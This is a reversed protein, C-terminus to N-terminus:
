VGRTIITRIWPLTHVVNHYMVPTLGCESPGTSVIGVLTWREEEDREMMGGGSDGPCATHGSRSKGACVQDETPNGGNEFQCEEATLVPVTVAQLVSSHPSGSYIGLRGWGVVTALSGPEPSHGSQPLCIPGINEASKVSRDL